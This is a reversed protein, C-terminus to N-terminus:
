VAEPGFSWSWRKRSQAHGFADNEGRVLFVLVLALIIHLTMIANLATLLIM